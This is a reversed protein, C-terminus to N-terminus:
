LNKRRKLGAVYQYARGLEEDSLDALSEAQFYRKIYEALAQARAPEKTNAKIYSYKSKRWTEPTKVSASPMANLRALWQNLYLRAKGFDESKILRYKPVDCHSNLSGWVARHGKPDKRLKAELEVVDNVLGTLVAAEKDSIHEDGPKVDAVTRHVVRETKIQQVNGGAVINHNGNVTVAARGSKFASCVADGLLLSDVSINCAAKIKALYLLDPVREGSEIRYQQAQSIGGLAGFEKPSLDLDERVGKIKAGISRAIQTDMESAAKAKRPM